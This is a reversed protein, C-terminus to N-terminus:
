GFAITVPQKKLECETPLRQTHTIGNAICFADIMEAIQEDTAAHCMGYLNFPWGDFTKREYCHSVMPCAALEAGVGSIREAPVEACFMTNAVYGLRRYDLVAAIKTLVRKQQLSRLVEVVDAAPPMHPIEEFPGETVPLGTQVAALVQKEIETLEVPESPVDPVIIEKALREASTKVAAQPGAPDFRVDLKFLRTAPLSHFEVGFEESLGQLMVDIAILSTGQLTFWLNYYHRRCYNHSVGDLASIADAVNDFTEDPVHACVLAAMRGLARYNLQPRFRRIYGNDKLAQITERVTKPDTELQEAVNDFPRGSIPLPQQLTRLLQMEFDSMATM